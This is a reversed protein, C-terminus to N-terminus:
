NISRDQTRIEDFLQHLNDQIYTTSQGRDLQEIGVRLNQRLEAIKFSRLEAEMSKICDM